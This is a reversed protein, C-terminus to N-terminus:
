LGPSEYSEKGFSSAKRRAGRRIPNTKCLRGVGGRGRGVRGRRSNPENQVNVRRRAGGHPWIPNTECTESGPWAVSWVVIVKAWMGWDGWTQSRKACDGGGTARAPALNPENQANVRRRGRSVPALNPENRVIGEALRRRGLSIPNTKRMQGATGPWLRRREIRLGCDDIRLMDNRPACRRPLRLAGPREQKVSSVEFKFSEAFCIM